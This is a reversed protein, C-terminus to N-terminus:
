ANELEKKPYRETGKADERDKLASFDWQKNKILKKRKKYAISM